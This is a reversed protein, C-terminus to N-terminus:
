LTPVMSTISFDSLDFCEAIVIETVFIQSKLKRKIKM